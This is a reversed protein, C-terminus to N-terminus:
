RSFLRTPGTYSLLYGDPRHGECVHVSRGCWECWGGVSWNISSNGACPGGLYVLIEMETVLNLDMRADPYVEWYEQSNDLTWQIGQLVLSLIDM